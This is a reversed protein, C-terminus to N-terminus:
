SKLLSAIREATLEWTYNKIVDDHFVEAKKKANGYNNVVYDMYESAQNIQKKGVKWLYQGQYFYCVSGLEPCCKEVEKCDIMFSNEKTLYETMGSHCNSIVPLGCAAAEIQTLSFGEGRSMHIYCDFNKYFGPMDVTPIIDNYLVVQPLDSNRPLHRKLDNYVTDFSYQTAFVLCVDDKATYKNVFAKILADYGKRFNWQILTLFKFDRVGDEVKPGFLSKYSNIKKVPVSQKFYIIEDIGLPAVRIRKKVGESKFLEKNAESPVWVEDSFRNCHDVFVSHLSSTEMMTFFVRKGGHYTHAMPTYAYVFPHDGKKPKMDEYQRFLDAAPPDIQCATAYTRVYPIIRYNHLRRTIERNMNAYGGADMFTGWWGVKMLGKEFYSGDRMSLGIEDFTQPLRSLQDTFGSVGKKSFVCPFNVLMSNRREERKNKLKQDFEKITLEFVISDDKFIKFPIESKIEITAGVVSINTPIEMNCCLLRKYSKPYMKSLSDSSPLEGESNTTLSEVIVRSKKDYIIIM